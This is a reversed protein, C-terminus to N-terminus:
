SDHRIDHHIAIVVDKIRDLKELLINKSEKEINKALAWLAVLFLFFATFFPSGITIGINIKEAM